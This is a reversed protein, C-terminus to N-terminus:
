NHGALRIMSLMAGLIVITQFGIAGVLWKLGEIRLADIKTELRLEMERLDSKRALHDGSAEAFAQALKESQETSFGGQKLTQAFKLTDFALATM